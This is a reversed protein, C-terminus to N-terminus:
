QPGALWGAGRARAALERGELAVRACGGVRSEALDLRALSRLFGYTVIVHIRSQTANYIRRSIRSAISPYFNAVEVEVHLREDVREAQGIPQPGPEDRRVEIQLYGRGNRGRKRCWCAASSAGACSGAGRRGDRIRAGPLHAAAAAPQAAGRLAGARQLARPDPRADRAHPLALLHARPARPADPTWIQALADADILLDAKQVSRVAGTDLDTTTSDALSVIVARRAGSPRARRRGLLGLLALTLSALLVAGVGVAIWTGTM